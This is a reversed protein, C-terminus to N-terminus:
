RQLPSMMESGKGMRKGERDKGLSGVVVMQKWKDNGRKETQGRISVRMCVRAKNM